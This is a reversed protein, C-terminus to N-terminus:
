FHFTLAVAATVRLLFVRVTKTSEIFDQGARLLRQPDFIRWKMYKQGSEGHDDRRENTWVRFANTKIHAEAASRSAFGCRVINRGAILSRLLHETPYAIVFREPPGETLRTELVAYRLIPLVPKTM